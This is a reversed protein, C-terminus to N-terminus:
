SRTNSSNANSQRSNNTSYRRTTASTSTRNNTTSRANTNATTSRSTNARQSVNDRSNPNSSRYTATASSRSNSNSARSRNYYENQTASYDRRSANNSSGNATPVSSTRVNSNNLRSAGSVIGGRVYRGQNVFGRRVFRETNYYGGNLGSYAIGDYFGANYAFGGGGWPSNWRNRNFWPDNWGWGANFGWGVNGGWGSNWGFFPDNWRNGWGVNMNFGNNWGFFPDYGFGGGFGMNQNNFGSNGYYNNIVTTGQPNEDVYYDVTSASPTNYNNNDTNNQYDSPTSGSKYRAIYDPNVNHAANDENYNNNAYSEYTARSDNSIGNDFNVKKRDNGNFYLDDYEQASVEPSMMFFSLILGFVVFRSLAEM